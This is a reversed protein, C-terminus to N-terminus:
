VDAPTLGNAVMYLALDAVATSTPTIKVIDGFLLHVEAYMLCIEAWRHELGLGLAQERLNTYQPGPMEHRYVSATAARMDTEFPAYYQRVV